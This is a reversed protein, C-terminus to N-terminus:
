SSLLFSSLLENFRDPAELFPFHAGGQNDEFIILTSGAIRGHIWEQSRADVHSVRGGVILTPRDIRTFIDSWDITCHNVFLSAVQGPDVRLNEALLWEKLDAPIQKTVMSDLFAGRTAHGDAGIIQEAIALMTTSDFLAGANVADQESMGAQRMVSAPEDVFVLRNFHRTGFMDIMAWVVSAGMSWGVIDAREIQEHRMLEQVDGAFRYIRYGHTAHPSQGHGRFDLAVVRRNRAFHAIQHRFMAASQSWGPLLILVEGSGEDTYALTAGDSTEFTKKM